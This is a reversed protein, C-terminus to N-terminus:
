PTYPIHTADAWVNLMQDLSGNTSADPMEGVTANYWQRSLERAENTGQPVPVAGDTVKCAIDADTFGNTFSIERKLHPMPRASTGQPAMRIVSGDAHTWVEQVATSASSKAFGAQQMLGRIEVASKKSLPPLAKVAAGRATAANQAQQSLRPLFFDLTDLKRMGATQLKPALQMMAVEGFKDTLRTIEKGSMGDLYAVTRGIRRLLVRREATSLDRLSDITRAVRSVVPGAGAGVGHAAARWFSGSGAVVGLASVVRDGFSLKKATSTCFEYGSIAECLDMADGAIPVFGVGIRLGLQLGDIVQSIANQVRAVGNDDDDPDPFGNAGAGIANLEEVVLEMNANLHQDRWQNLANKLRPALATFQQALIGDVYNRTELPVPNKKFWDGGDLWDRLWDTVRNRAANFANTEDRPFGRARLAAELATQNSRWGRVTGIFDQRDVVDGNAVYAGLKALIQDAYAAYPDHAPDFPFAGSTDPVTVGPIKTVDIATTWNAPDSPDFGNARSPGEVTGVLADTQHGFDATIRGLEAQLAAVDKQLDTVLKVLADRTAPPVETYQALLAQLDAATDDGIGRALLNAVDTQLQALHALQQALNAVDAAHAVLYDQDSKLAAEFAKIDAALQPDIQDLTFTFSTALASPDLQDGDVRGMSDPTGDDHGYWHDLFADGPSGDSSASTRFLGRTGVTPSVMSTDDYTSARYSLLPGYDFRVANSGVKLLTSDFPADFENYYAPVIRGSMSWPVVKWRNPVTRTPLQSGNVAFHGYGESPLSEAHWRNGDDLARTQWRLTWTSASASSATLLVLFFVLARLAIARFAGFFSRASM